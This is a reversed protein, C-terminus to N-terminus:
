SAMEADLRDMWIACGSAAIQRDAGLRELLRDYEGGSALTGTTGLMEFVVGTYYDLRPSFGADFTVPGVHEAAELAEFHQNLRALPAAIDINQDEAVGEVSILAARADGNISLYNRLLTITEAPVSSAALAQKEFYRAAIEEPSRSGTLSLGANVMQDAVVGVLEEQKWPLSGAKAGAHPNALRDLLRGMAVPNGFRHRIRGRWVDPIDVQALLAEFLAVSGLRIAPKVGGTELAALAFAFVRGLAADADPQGILELGAQDFEAPGDTRQRFIPGLYSFAGPEGAQESDLYTTAIPLTFDPRLCYEYGDSGNTLLLRRGLEEGALDFFPSAPLLIPPNVPTVGDVRTLAAVAARRNAAEPSM